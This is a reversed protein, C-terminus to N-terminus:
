GKPGVIQFSGPWSERGQSSGGYTSWPAYSSQGPFIKYDVEGGYQSSIQGALTGATCIDSDDTFVPGGWVSRTAFGPPCACAVTLGNQGRQAVANTPCQQLGAAYSVSVTVDRMGMPSGDKGGSSCRLTYTATEYPTHSVSGSASSPSSVYIAKNNPTIGEIYCGGGYTQIDSSSVNSSWSFTVPQGSTVFNPTATFSNIYIYSTQPATESPIDMVTNSGYNLGTFVCSGSESKGYKENRVVTCLYKCNQANPTLDSNFTIGGAIGTSRPTFSCTAGVVITPTAASGSLYFANSTAIVNGSVDSVRLMYYGGPNSDSYGINASASGPSLIQSAISTNNTKSILDLKLSTGAINKYTYYVYPNTVSTMTISAQQAPTSIPSSPITSGCSRAIAARTLSGVIGLAPLGKDQQFKIVYRQTLQGFYGTTLDEENLGFYGALFVQLDTVQGGTSADRLGRQLTSTLNPCDNGILTTGYDDTLGASNSPSQLSKIQNMLAAIQAQVDSISQASAIVPSVLLALAVLAAKTRM